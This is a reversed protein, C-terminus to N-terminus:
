EIGPHYWRPIDFSDSPSYPKELPIAEWHTSKKFITTAPILEAIERIILYINRDPDRLIWKSLYTFEEVHEELMFFISDLVDQISTDKGIEVYQESNLNPFKLTISINYWDDSENTSTSNILPSSLLGVLRKDIHQKLDEVAVPLTINQESKTTDYKADTCRVLKKISDLLVPKAMEEDFFIDYKSLLKRIFRSLSDYDALQFSQYMAIPFPVDELKDIGVCVPIVDCKPNSAAFGSEFFLWPRLLSLPTLLVVVARSEKLKTRIEDLWVSGLKLGGSGSDDSSHWVTIQNLTIRSITFALISYVYMSAQIAKAASM